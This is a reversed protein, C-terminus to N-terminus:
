GLYIHIFNKAWTTSGHKATRCIALKELPELSYAKPLFFDPSALHSKYQECTKEIRKTRNLFMSRINENRQFIVSKKFQRLPKESPIEKQKNRSNIIRINSQKKPDSKKILENDRYSVHKVNLKVGQEKIDLPAESFFYLTFCILAGLLFLKIWMLGSM